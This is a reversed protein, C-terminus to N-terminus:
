NFTVHYRARGQDFAAPVLFFAQSGLVPHELPYLSQELLPAGDSEFTLSFPARMSSDAPNFNRLALADTLKFEIAGINATHLVFTDGVKDSFDELLLQKEAM